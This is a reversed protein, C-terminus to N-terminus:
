GVTDGGSAGNNCRLASLLSHGQSLSLFFGLFCKVQVSYLSFSQAEEYLM